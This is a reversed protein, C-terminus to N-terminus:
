KRKVNSTKLFMEAKRQAVAETDWKAHNFFWNYTSRGKKDEYDDALMKHLGRVTKRNDSVVIAALEHCFSEHSLKTFLDRFGEAFVEVCEPIKVLKIVSGFGWLVVNLLCFIV